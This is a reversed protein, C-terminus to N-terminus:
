VKGAEKVIQKLTKRYLQRKIKNLQSSISSDICQNNIELVMGGKIKPQHNFHLKVTKGLLKGIRQVIEAQQDADLKYATTVSGHLIGAQKDLIDKYSAYIDRLLLLRGKRALVGLLNLVLASLRGTFVRRIVLWKDNSSIAPNELFVEWQPLRDMTDIIGSLEESVELMRSQGQQQLLGILARSYIDAVCQSQSYAM